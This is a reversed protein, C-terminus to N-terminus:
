AIRRNEGNGSREADAAYRVPGSSRTARLSAEAPESRRQDEPEDDLAEHLLLVIVVTAVIAFFLYAGWAQMAADAALVPLPAASLLAAIRACRRHRRNRCTQM